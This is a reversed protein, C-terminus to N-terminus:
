IDYIIRYITMKLDHLPRELVLAHNLRVTVRGHLITGELCSLTNPCM